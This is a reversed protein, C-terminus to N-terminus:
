STLIVPLMIILASPVLRRTRLTPASDRVVLNAAAAGLCFCAICIGFFALATPDYAILDQEQVYVRYVAPPLLWATLFVLLSVSALVFPSPLFNLALKTGNFM